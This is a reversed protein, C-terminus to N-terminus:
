EGSEQKDLIDLYDSTFSVATKRLARHNGTCNGTEDSKSLTIEIQTMFYRTDLLYKSGEEIKLSARFGEKEMTELFTETLKKENETM